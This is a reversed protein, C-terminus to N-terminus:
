LPCPLVHMTVCGSVGAISNAASDSCDLCPARRQSGGMICGNCTVTLPGQLMRAASALARCPLTCSPPQAPRQPSAIPTGSVASLWGQRAIPASPAKEGTLRRSRLYKHLDLACAQGLLQGLELLLLALHVLGCLDELFYSHHPVGPVSRQASDRHMLCLHCCILLLPAPRM